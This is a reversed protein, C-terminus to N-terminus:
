QLFHVWAAQQGRGPEFVPLDRATKGAEPPLPSKYWKLLGCYLIHPFPSPHTQGLRSPSPQPFRFLGRKGSSLSMESEIELKANVQPLPVKKQPLSRDWCHLPPIGQAARPGERNEGTPPFPSQLNRLAIFGFLVRGQRTLVAPAPNKR